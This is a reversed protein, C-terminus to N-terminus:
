EKWILRERLQKYTKIYRPHGAIPADHMASILKVKLETDSPIFVRNKCFSLGKISFRDDNQCGDLLRSTFNNKTYEAIVEGKWNNILTSLSYFTSLRSLADAASNRKGKIFEIDFDYTQLKSM